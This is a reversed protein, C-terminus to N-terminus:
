NVEVEVEVEVEIEIEIEFYNTFLSKALHLLAM